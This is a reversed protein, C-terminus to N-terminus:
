EGNSSSTTTIPLSAFQEAERLVWDIGDRVAGVDVGQPDKNARVYFECAKHMAAMCQELEKIRVDKAALENTFRTVTDAVSRCRHNEAQELAHAYQESSYVPVPVTCDMASTYLARADVFKPRVVPSDSM